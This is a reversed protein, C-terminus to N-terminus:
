HGRTATRTNTGHRFVGVPERSLRDDDNVRRADLAKGASENTITNTVDIYLSVVAVRVASEGRLDDSDVRRMMATM